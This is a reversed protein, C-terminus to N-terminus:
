TRRSQGGVKSAAAAEEEKSLGPREKGPRSGEEGAAGTGPKQGGSTGTRTARSGALVNMGPHELGPETSKDAQMGRINWDLPGRHQRAEEPGRINWDSAGRRGDKDKKSQRNGNSEKREKEVRM